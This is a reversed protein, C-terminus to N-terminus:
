GGGPLNGTVIRACGFPFHTLGRQAFNHPAELLTKIKRLSACRNSSPDQRVKRGQAGSADYHRFCPDIDVQLWTTAIAFNRRGPLLMLHRRRCSLPGLCYGHRGFRVISDFLQERLALPRVATSKAQLHIPLRLTM